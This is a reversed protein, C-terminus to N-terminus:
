RWWYFVRDGLGLGGQSWYMANVNSDAMDAEIGTVFFASVGIMSAMLDILDAKPTQNIAVVDGMIPQAGDINLKISDLGLAYLDGIKQAISGNPENKSDLGTILDRLQKRNNERLEDFTGFRAFEPKLPHAKM